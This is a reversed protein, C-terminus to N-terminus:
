KRFLYVLISILSIGIIAIPLAVFIIGLVVIGLVVKTLFSTNVISFQRSYIRQNGNYSEYHGHASQEQGNEITIGNFAQKEEVTLVQITNIGKCSSCELENGEIETGCVTCKM